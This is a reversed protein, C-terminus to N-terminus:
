PVAGEENKFRFLTKWFIHFRDMGICLLGWSGEM